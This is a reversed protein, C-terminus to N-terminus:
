RSYYYGMLLVATANSLDSVGDSTYKSSEEPLRSIDVVYQQYVKGEAHGDIYVANTRGNGSPIAYSNLRPDAAGHRWSFCRNNSATSNTSWSSDGFLLADSPQYVTSLKRVFSQKQGSLYPNHIYHLYLFSTTTDVGFGRPEAPCRMVGPNNMGGFDLGYGGAARADSLIDGNQRGGSLVNYWLNTQDPYNCKARLIHDDNDVTYNNHAMGMNKLNSICQASKARDRAKNLAPLLMGALIAIIAIVVLLEILTFHRKM